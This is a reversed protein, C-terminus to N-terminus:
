PGPAPRGHLAVTITHPGAEVRVTRYPPLDQRTEPNVLRDLERDLPQGGPRRLSPGAFQLRSLKQRYLIFALALGHSDM